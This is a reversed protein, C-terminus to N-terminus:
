PKPHEDRQGHPTNLVHVIETTNEDDNTMIDGHEQQMITQLAALAEALAGVEDNTQTICAMMAEQYEGSKWKVLEDATIYLLDAALAASSFAAAAASANGGFGLAVATQGTLNGAITAVGSLGAHVGRLVAAATALESYTPPLTCGNETQSVLVAEEDELIDNIIVIQDKMEAVENEAEVYTDLLSKAEETMENCLDTEEAEDAPFGVSEFWFDCEFDEETKKGKGKNKKNPNCEQLEGEFLEIAACKAQKDGQEYDCIGDKAIGKPEGDDDWDSLPLLHADKKHGRVAEKAQRKFFKKDYKAVARNSKAKAKNIHELRNPANNDLYDGLPSGSALEDDIGGLDNSFKNQSDTLKEYVSDEECEQALIAASTGLTLLLALVARILCKM